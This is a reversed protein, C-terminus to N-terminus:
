ATVDLLGGVSSTPDRTRGLKVASVAGADVRSDQPATDRHSNRASSDGGATNTTVNFQTVSVGGDQLRQRLEPIQSEIMARVADNSVTLEARLGDASSHVHVRVEGLEPPDLRLHFEHEGGKSRLDAHTIWTDGIQHVPPSVTPTDTGAQGPTASTTPPALLQVRGTDVAPSGDSVALSKRETEFEGVGAVTRQPPHTGAPEAVMVQTLSDATATLKVTDSFPADNPGPGPQPVGTSTRQTVASQQGAVVPSLGAVPEPGAVPPQVPVPRLEVPPNPPMLTRDNIIPTQPVVGRTTPTQSSLVGAITTIQSALAAPQQGTQSINSTTAPSGQPPVVDQTVASPLTIPGAFRLSEVRSTNGAGGDPVLPTLPPPLLVGGLLAALPNATATQASADTSSEQNLSEDGTQAVTGLKAIQTSLLSTFSLGDAATTTGPSLSGAAPVGHLSNASAVPTNAM